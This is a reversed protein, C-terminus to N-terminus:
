FKKTKHNSVRSILIFILQYIYNFKKRKNKVKILIIENIKIM